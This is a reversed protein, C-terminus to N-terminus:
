LLESFEETQFLYMKRFDSALRRSFNAARLELADDGLSRGPM